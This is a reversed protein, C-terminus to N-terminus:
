RPSLHTGARRAQDSRTQALRNGSSDYAWCFNPQWNPTALQANAPAAATNVASTLRNLQDYGFSWSGMVTDTYALVNGNLAYGGTPVSYSYVPTVVTSALTGGTLAGAPVDASFSGVPFDATDYGTFTLSYPFNSGAVGLPGAITLNAGVATLSV